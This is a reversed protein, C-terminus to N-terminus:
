GPLEEVLPEYDRRAFLWQGNQRVALDAYRGILKYVGGSKLLIIERAVSRCTARDGDVEISGVEGLFGVKAFNAWLTDWQARLEKKGACRFIHSNWQGDETWCTLFAETDGRVSADSYSSYLDRIALRDEIPGTFAM